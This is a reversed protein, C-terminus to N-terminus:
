LSNEGIHRRISFEIAKIADINDSKVAQELGYYWSMEILGQEAFMGIIDRMKNLYKDKDKINDFSFNNNNM